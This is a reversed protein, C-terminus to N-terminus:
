KKTSIRHALNSQLGYLKIFGDADERTWSCSQAYTATKHDILSNSTKIEVPLAQGYELKMKVTGTVNKQQSDLFTKLDTVLPDYFKGNYIMETLRQSVPVGFDIQTKTLVQQELARHAIILFYLAPAEIAIRGKIGIICDGTYYMKGFGHQGVVKNLYAIAESGSMAKNNVKVLEGAKFSVSLYKSKKIEKATVLKFIKSDAEKSQDITSGSYTLGMINENISYQQHKWSVDFGRDKLFNLEVKRDGGIEKIPEVIKINPGLAMLALDFRVQDNGMATSGHAVYKANEKKAIEICKKAILYRDACMNPYSGEYLGNSKIIWSIVEEYLEKKIDVQYHKSAGLKRSKKKIAILEKKSFGGSDLTVTIVQYGQDKLYPISFSTDLGGSFALILKKNQQKKSM